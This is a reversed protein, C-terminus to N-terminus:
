QGMVAAPAAVLRLGTEQLAFQGRETLDAIFKFQERAEMPYAKLKYYLGFPLHKMVVVIPRDLHLYVSTMAVDLLAQRALANDHDPHVYFETVCLLDKQGSTANTLQGTWLASHPITIDNADITRVLVTRLGLHIVEGYTEGIQIWDGIRYPREFMFIIGAILCSIYDKIAFGVAFATAGLLALVNERTPRIILPVILTAATLLIILRLLPIWPLAYFREHPRLLGTIRPVLHRVLEYAIWAATLILLIYVPENGSWEQLMKRWNESM